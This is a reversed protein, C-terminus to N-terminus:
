PEDPRLEALVAESHEGLAPPPSMRHGERSGDVWVPNRIARVRGETPHDLDMFTGLHRVQPDDFVEPVKYVPAFPVDSRSLRAEWEALPRTQFVTGAERSLEFYNEIRASRTAFRPDEALDPREIADFFARWFKEQSSLHM